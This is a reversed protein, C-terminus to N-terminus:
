ALHQSLHCVLQFSSQLSFVLLRLYASSVVRIAFLSSSSFLRKILIFSSLSFTPKFSFILFIFIMVDLEMWIEQHCTSPSLTSVNLSKIKKAELIVASPAQLGSILLCKSRPLLSRSLRETTDSEKCSWPSYLGHFEGPWFVSTHTAKGKLPDEWGPSRGLGSIM